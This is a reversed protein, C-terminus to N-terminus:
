KNEKLPKAFLRSRYSLAEILHMKSVKKQNQLDAITRALRLIRNLSRATLGCKQAADAAFRRLEADLGLAEDLMDGKLEANCSLEPAGFSKFREAAMTRAALVQARMEASSMGKKAATLDYPDVAPVDIQLDFRDLFPGSLRRTYEAVCLPAKACMRGKVGFFGCRCPNMAAILQFDAPYTTHAMVRAIVAKKSELPQRLADLAARTFEPLEDLFLVGNHALTIEGPVGKRGGGVLAPVSASHHPARFPRRLDLGSEPEDTDGDWLGGSPSDAGGSTEEAYEPTVIKGKEEAIGVISRIMANELAQRISLPPLITVLREALMTKGSGPPGVMLLNHGGAAAVMMARKASEQGKVEAYDMGYLAAYDVTDSFSVGAKRKISKGTSEVALGDGSQGELCSGDVGGTASEGKDEGGECESVSEGKGWGASFPPFDAGATALAGPRAAILSHTASTRGGLPAYKSPVHANPSLGGDANEIVVIKGKKGKKGFLSLVETLNRVGRVEECRSWRAEHRNAYPCVLGLRSALARIGAPLVGNVREVRGDLSLAGMFIYSKLKTADVLGMAGLLGVAIPLDFHSGEKLLDVPKLNVIVREGPFELGLSSFVARVRERSENIAKDPLGVIVFAPLGDGVSVQVEVTKAEIGEFAVTKLSCIM